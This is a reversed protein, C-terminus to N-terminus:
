TRGRCRGPTAEVPRRTTSSTPRAAPSVFEFTGGQVVADRGSCGTLLAALVAAAIVLRRMTM